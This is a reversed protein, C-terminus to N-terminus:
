LHKTFLHGVGKGLQVPDTTPGVALYFAHATNASISDGFNRGARILMTPGHPIRYEINPGLTVVSDRNSQRYIGQFSVTNGAANVYSDEYTAKIHTGVYGAQIFAGFRFRHVEKPYRGVLVLDTFFDHLNANAGQDQYGSIGSRGVLMGIGFWSAPNMEVYGTQSFASGGRGVLPAIRFLPVRDADQASVPIALLVFVAFITAVVFM